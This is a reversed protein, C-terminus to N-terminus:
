GQTLRPRNEGPVIGFKRLERDLGGTAWLWSMRLDARFSWLPHEFTAPRNGELFFHAIWAPGYGAVAAAALWPLPGSDKSKRDSDGVSALARALCALGITTGAIHLARTQPHSHEHLYFPWFAEFSRFSGTM